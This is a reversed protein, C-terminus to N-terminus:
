ATGEFVVASHIRLSPVTVAARGDAYTFAMEAGTLADYVRSPATALRVSATVPGLTPLDEIMEMVRVGGEGNPVGKGRIQPAGYLLHLIHRVPEEQRTLTARGSSPLDTIIAPDPLLRAILGRVMYKYLPQGMAHYISFIPFAIYGIADTATVAAGLPAAAPDDPTHQHSSYHAYSRNFYPRAVEALVTAGEAGISHGTGYMVFPTETMATDLSGNARIYSPNFGVPGKARIGADVAFSGDANLASSGTLVLKGGQAVFRTLREALAKDVPIEDPLIILKYAEFKASPDIVDFPLKLEQLMQAAGDDADSNRAGLPHFYEAALIAIDSV